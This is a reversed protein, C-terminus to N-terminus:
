APRGRRAPVADAHRGLAGSPQWTQALSRPQAPARESAQEWCGASLGIGFLLSTLSLVVVDGYVQHSVIFSAGNAMAFAILGLALSPARSRQRLVELAARGVFTAMILACLFGPLGLEVMLRSPGSEQWGKGRALGLHQAGQTAFGIGAGLFGSQDLTVWLQDWAGGTVRAKGEEAVLAAHEFYGSEVGLEGSAYYAAGATLGGAVALAVLRSGRGARISYAGVVLAWVVPMMLMKRRGGLLLAVAGCTVLALLLSSNKFRRHLVLTLGLMVLAAAHWGMIDPSRYFGSVLPLTGRATYRIWTGGLAETGLAPWGPAAGLFELPTGVMSAAVIVCYFALLREVEKVRRCFVFGLAICGAPALYGFLGLAALKWGSVGYQLAIVVPIALSAVFLGMARALTPFAQRLVAWSRGLVIHAMAFWIPLSSLVLLAPTGPSLKRVPDQLVGVLIAFFAGRQWRHLTMGAGVLVFLGFAVLM